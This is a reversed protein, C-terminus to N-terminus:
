VEAGWLVAQLRDNDMLWRTIARIARVLAMLEEWPEDEIQMSGLVHALFLPHDYLEVHDSLAEAQDKTLMQSIRMPKGAIAELRDAFDHQGSLAALLWWIGCRLINNDADKGATMPRNPLEVLYGYGCATDPEPFELYCDLRFMRALNFAHSAVETRLAVLVAEPDIDASAAAGSLPTPSRTPLAPLPVEDTDADADTDAAEPELSERESAPATRMGPAPVLAAPPEAPPAAAPEPATEASETTEPTAPAPLVSAAPAAPDPHTEPVEDADNGTLNRLATDIELRALQLSMGATEALVGEFERQFRDIQLSEADHRRLCDSWLADFADAQEPPVKKQWYTRIVKELKRIREVPGSGMGAQLATPILPYLVTAAYEFTILLTRSVTLGAAKLSRVWESRKLTTGAEAEFQSKLEMVALAKDILVMDGRLENEILHATLIHTESVWPRFVVPVRNFREDGTEAYLEQLIQLRTNGGAEVMYWDDGPRRTVTIPNNLGGQAQISAKIEDYRPNKQRRPNHDYTRLQNLRLDSRLMPKLPDAQPLSGTNFGPGAESPLDEQPQEADRGQLVSLMLSTTTRNKTSM